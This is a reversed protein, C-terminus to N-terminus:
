ACIFEVETWYYSLFVDEIAREPSTLSTQTKTMLATTLEGIASAAMGHPVTRLLIEGHM